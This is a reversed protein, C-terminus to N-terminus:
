QAAYLRGDRCGGPPSDNSRPVEALAHDDLELRIEKEHKVQHDRAAQVPFSGACLERALVPEGREVSVELVKALTQEGATARDRGSAGM